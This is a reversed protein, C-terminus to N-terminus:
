QNHIIEVLYRKKRMKPNQRKIEKTMSKLPRSIGMAPDCKYCLQLVEHVTSATPFKYNPLFLPIQHTQQSASTPASAGASSLMSQLSVNSIYGPSNHQIEQVSSDQQNSQIMDKTEAIKDSVIEAFKSTLNEKKKRLEHALQSPTITSNEGMLASRISDSRNPSFM